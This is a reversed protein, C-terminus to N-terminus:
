LALELPVEWITSTCLGIIKGRDAETLGTGRGTLTVGEDATWPPPLRRRLMVPDPNTGPDVTVHFPLWTLTSNTFLVVSSTYTGALSRVSAPNRENVTVLGAGPPPMEDGSVNVM